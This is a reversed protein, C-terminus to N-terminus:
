KTWSVGAETDNWGGVMGMGQGKVGVVRPTRGMINQGGGFTKHMDYGKGEFM